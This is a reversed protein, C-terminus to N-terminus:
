SRNHEGDIIEWSTRNRRCVTLISGSHCTLQQLEGFCQGFIRSRSMTLSECECLLHEVTENGSLCRKCLPNIDEVTKYLHGYLGLCGTLM